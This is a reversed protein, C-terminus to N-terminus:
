DVFSIYKHPHIFANEKVSITDQVDVIGTVSVQNRFKVNDGAYGLREIFHLLGPVQEDNNRVLRADRSLYIRARLHLEAVDIQLLCYVM